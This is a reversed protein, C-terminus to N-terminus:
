QQNGATHASSDLNKKADEGTEVVLADIGNEKLAAVTKQLSDDNALTNWQM